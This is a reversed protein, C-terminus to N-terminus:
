EAGGDMVKLFDRRLTREGLPMELKVRVMEVDDFAMAAPGLVVGRLGKSLGATIEVVEGLPLPPLSALYTSPRRM